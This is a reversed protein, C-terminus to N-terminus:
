QYTNPHRTITNQSLDRFSNAKIKFKALHEPHPCKLNCADKIAMLIPRNFPELLFYVCVRTKEVFTSLNLDLKRQHFSAIIRTLDLLDLAM